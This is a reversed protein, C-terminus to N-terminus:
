GANKRSYFNAILYSSNYTYCLLSPPKIDLTLQNNFSRLFFYKLVKKLIKCFMSIIYINNQLNRM